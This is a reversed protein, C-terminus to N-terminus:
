TRNKSQELRERAVQTAATGPFLSILDHYRDNALDARGAERLQDAAQLIIAAAREREQELEFSMDRRLKLKSKNVKAAPKMSREVAQVVEMRDAAEGDLRDAENRLASITNQKSKQDREVNRWGIMAISGVVIVLALSASIVVRMQQQRERRISRAALAISTADAIALPPAGTEAARLLQALRQDNM